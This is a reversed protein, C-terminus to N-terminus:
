GRALAEGIAEPPRRLEVLTGLLRVVEKPVSSLIARLDCFAKADGVSYGKRVRRVPLGPLISLEVSLYERKGGKQSQNAKSAESARNLDQTRLHVHPPTGTSM